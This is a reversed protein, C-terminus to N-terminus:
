EKKSLEEARQKAAVAAQKWSGGEILIKLASETTGGKSTIQKRLEVPSVATKTILSITSATTASALEEATQNDLGVEEAAETLRRVYEEKIEESIHLPDIKKVELDYSIYAPGSGSIATLADIMEEKISWTRGICNFVERTFDLDRDLAYKGKCLGSEAQGIKACINPMVRVVRTEGLFEEIAGTKIGAAISIILKNKTHGKIEALLAAFDQPKVALILTDVKDILDNITRAIKIGSITKTKREDKDFVYVEYNTKLRLGIARGMNGFGIIGIKDKM